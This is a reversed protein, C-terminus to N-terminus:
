RGPWGDIGGGLPVDQGNSYGIALAVAAFSTATVLSYNEIHGFWLQSSGLAMLSIFICPRTWANSGGLRKTVDIVATVYIMGAVVSLLAVVSQPAIRLPACCPWRRIASCAIWRNKGCMPIPKCPVRLWCNCSSNPM